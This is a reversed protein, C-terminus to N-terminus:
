KFNGSYFVQTISQPVKQERFATIQQGDSAYHIPEVTRDM